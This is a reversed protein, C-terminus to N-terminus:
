QNKGKRLIYKELDHLHDCNEKRLIFLKKSLGQWKMFGSTKEGQSDTKAESNSENFNVKHLTLSISRTWEKAPPYGAKESDKVSPANKEEIHTLSVKM